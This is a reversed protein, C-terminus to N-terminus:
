YLTPKIKTGGTMLEILRFTAPNNFYTLRDYLTLTKSGYSTFTLTSTVDSIM